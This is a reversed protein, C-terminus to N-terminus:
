QNIVAELAIGATQMVAGLATNCDVAGVHAGAERAGAARPANLRDANPVKRRVVDARTIATARVIAM